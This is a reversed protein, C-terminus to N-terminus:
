KSGRKKAGAKKAPTKKEAAEAPKVMNWPWLEPNAFPNEFPKAEGRNKEDSSTLLARQYELSKISLQLMALNSNLWMEVTKLESIKKDLEEPDIVPLFPNQAPLGMPNMMKRFLDMVDDQGIKKDM